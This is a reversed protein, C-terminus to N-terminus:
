LELTGDLVARGVVVGDMGVERVAEVDAADRVGGAALLRGPFAGRAECLLDLAPGTATGDRDIVTFVVTRVDAAACRALAEAATQESSALWGSTRVVDGSVDVSVAMTEGLASTFESLPIPGFAATGVIVRAAGTAALALADDVTRVGGGIQLPVPAAAEVAASALEFQPGGDRAAALAVLHILPPRSAAYRRILELPDGGEAGVREYDGQVLRVARGGLVDVAPVVAFEEPM